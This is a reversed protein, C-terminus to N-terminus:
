LEEEKEKRYITDRDMLITELTEVRKEMQGIGNYIEQIMRTEEEQVRHNTSSLGGQRLKIAMLITGGIVALALVIGGFIVLLIEIAYM